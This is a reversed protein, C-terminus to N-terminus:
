VTEALSNEKLYNNLAELINKEHNVFFLIISLLNRQKVFTKAHTFDYINKKLAKYVDADGDSFKFIEAYLKDKSSM